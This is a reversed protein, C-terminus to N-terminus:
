AHSHSVCCASVMQDALKADSMTVRNPLLFLICRRKLDTSCIYASYQGMNAHWLFLLSPSYPTCTTQCATLNSSVHTVLRCPCLAADTHKQRDFTSIAGSSAQRSTLDGKSVRAICDGDVVWAHTAARTTPPNTAWISVSSDLFPM